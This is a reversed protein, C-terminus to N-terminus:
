ADLSVWWTCLDNRQEVKFLRKYYWCVMKTSCAILVISGTNKAEAHKSKTCVASYITCVASYKQVHPPTNQVCLLTNQVYLLTNKYMCCLIKYM